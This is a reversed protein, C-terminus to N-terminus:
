TPIQKNKHKTKNNEVNVITILTVVYVSLRTVPYPIRSLEDLTGHLAAIAGTVNRPIEGSVAPLRRNKHLTCVYHKCGFAYKHMIYNMLRLIVLTATLVSGM